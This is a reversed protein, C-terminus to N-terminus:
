KKKELDSSPAPVSQSSRTELAEKDEALGHALRDADGQMAESLVQALHERYQCAYATQDKTDVNWGCQCTSFNGYEGDIAPQHADLTAQITQELTM